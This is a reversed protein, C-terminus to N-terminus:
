PSPLRCWTQKVAPGHCLRPPMYRMCRVKIEGPGPTSRELPVLKLGAMSGRPLPLLHHDPKRLLTASPLLVQKYLSGQDAATGFADGAGQLGACALDGSNEPFFDATPAARIVLLLCSACRHLGLCTRCMVPPLLAPGAPLCRVELLSAPLLPVAPGLSASLFSSAPHEAAAVKLMAAMGAAGPQPLSGIPQVAGSGRSLLGVSAAAASCAQQTLHLGASLLRSAASSGTALARIARGKSDPLQLAARGQKGPKLTGQRIRQGAHGLPLQSGPLAALLASGAARVAALSSATEAAQWRAEYVVQWDEAEAAAQM